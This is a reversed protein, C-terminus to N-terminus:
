YHNERLVLTILSDPSVCDDFVISAYVHPNHQSENLRIFSSDGSDGNFDKIRNVGKRRFKIAEVIRSSLFHTTIAFRRFGNKEGMWRDRTRIRIPDPWMAHTVM